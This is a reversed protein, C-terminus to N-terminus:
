TELTFPTLLAVIPVITRFAVRARAELGAVAFDVRGVDTTPAPYTEMALAPVPCAFTELIVCSTAVIMACATFTSFAVEHTVRLRSQTGSGLLWSLALDAGSSKIAWFLVGFHM